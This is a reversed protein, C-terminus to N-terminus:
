IAYATNFAALVAAAQATSIQNFGFSADSLVEVLWLLKYVSFVIMALDAPFTVYPAFPGVVAVPPMNTAQAALVALLDACPFGGPKDQPFTTALLACFQLTRTRTSKAPDTQLSTPLLDIYCNAAADQLDPEPFAM